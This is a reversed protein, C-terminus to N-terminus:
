QKEGKMGLTDVQTKVTTIVSRLDKVSGEVIDLRNGHVNLDQGLASLDQRLATGVDNIARTLPEFQAAIEKKVRGAHVWAAITFYVGIQAIQNQATASLYEMFRIPDMGYLVGLLSGGVSATMVTKKSPLM